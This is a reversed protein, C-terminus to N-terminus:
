EMATLCLRVKYVPRGYRDTRPTSDVESFSEEGVAGAAFTIVSVPTSNPSGTQTVSRESEEQISVHRSNQGTYPPRRHVETDSSSENHSSTPTLTNTAAAKTRFSFRIARVFQRCEPLDVWQRDMGADELYMQSCRFNMRLRLVFFPFLRFIRVKMIQIPWKAVNRYGTHLLSVGLICNVQNTKGKSLSPVAHLADKRLLSLM